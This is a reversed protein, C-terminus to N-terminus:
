KYSSHLIIRSNRQTVADALLIDCEAQISHDGLKRMLLHCILRSVFITASLKEASTSYSTWNQSSAKDVPTVTGAPASPFHSTSTLSLVSCALGSEFAPCPECPGKDFREVKRCYSHVTAALKASIMPLSAVRRTQM